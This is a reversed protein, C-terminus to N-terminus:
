KRPVEELLESAALDSPAVVREDMPLRDIGGYRQEIIRRVAPHELDYDRFRRLPCLEIGAKKYVKWVLESCYLSTDDWKFHLDYDRGIQAQAWARAKQYAAPTLALKLRRATFVEPRGRAMFDELATVRVPQVAELVMFRGDKGFVIGCHTYPSGTAQIIADGQGLKSGSFVIDGERLLYGSKEEAALPSVLALAFSVAISLLVSANM